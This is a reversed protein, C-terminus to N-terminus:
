EHFRFFEQFEEIADDKTWGRSKKLWNWRNTWHVTFRNERAWELEIWDKLEPYKEKAEDMM